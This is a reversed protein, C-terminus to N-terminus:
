EVEWDSEGYGVLVCMRGDVWGGVWRSQVRTVEEMGLRCVHVCGGM